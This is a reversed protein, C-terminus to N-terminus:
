KRSLVTLDPLCREKSTQSCVHLVTSIRFLPSDCFFAHQVVLQQMRAPWAGDESLFANLRTM